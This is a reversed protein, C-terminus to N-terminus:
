QQQEGEDTTTTNFPSEQVIGKLRLPLDMARMAERWLRAASREAPWDQNPPRGAEGWERLIKAHALEIQRQRYLRDVVKVIDDPDCPRPPNMDAPQPRATERREMLRAFCWLWAADCTRFPEVARTRNQRLRTYRPQDDNM